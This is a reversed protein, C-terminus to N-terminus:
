KVQADLEIDETHTDKTVILRSQNEWVFNNFEKTM